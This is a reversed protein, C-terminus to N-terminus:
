SARIGDIRDTIADYFAHMESISMGFGCPTAHNGEQVPIMNWVGPQIDAYQEPLECHAAGTPFQASTVSVLGDNPQWTEDIVIGDATTGTYTGMAAALPYFLLFTNPKPVMGNLLTGKQTTNYAYSFYYVSDATSIKKNLKASGDPSLDYFANDNGISQIDRLAQTIEAESATKSSVGFQDLMLDTLGNASDTAKALKFLLEVLLDVTNGVGGVSGLDDVICTLQSGNNPSCLTTVSYVWDGKGGTFLPSTEKGSAAKEAADGDQLLACLMRITAGGFSHSILNIKVRQGGNMREGWNEIMPETYTRGYRAHGCVKSHAEGYDVRTGTLQAYLECTRDWTSSFPGVSPVAVTHGKSRLYKPIAEGCASWYSLSTKTSNEGWGGLGHVFVYPYEVTGGNINYWAKSISGYRQPLILLGVLLSTVVVTAVIAILVSKSDKSKQVSQEM